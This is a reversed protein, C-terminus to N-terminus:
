SKSKSYDFSSILDYDVVSEELVKFLDNKKAPLALLQALKIQAEDFDYGIVNKYGKSRLFYLFNGYGCPVDLCSSNIDKPLYKKLNLHFKCINNLM